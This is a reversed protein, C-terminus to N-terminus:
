GCKVSSSTFDWLTLSLTPAQGCTQSTAIVSHWSAPHYIRLVSSQTGCFSSSGPRCLQGCLHHSRPQPPLQEARVANLCNLRGGATSHLLPERGCGGSISSLKSHRHLKRTLAGLAVKPNRLGRHSSLGSRPTPALSLLGLGWVFRSKILFNTM